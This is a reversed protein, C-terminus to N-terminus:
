LNSTLYKKFSLMKFFLVDTNTLIANLRKESIYNLKRVLLLSAKSEFLSGISIDIFHAFDKRSSISSGEAINLLVSTIARKIQSTLGYLEEKPLEKVAAYVDLSLNEALKYIELNEFNYKQYAM